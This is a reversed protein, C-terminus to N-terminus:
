ADVSLTLADRSRRFEWSAFTVSSVPRKSSPEIQYECTAGREPSLAAPGHETPLSRQRSDRIRLGLGGTAYSLRANRRDHRREDAM